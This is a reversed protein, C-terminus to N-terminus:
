VKGYSYRVIISVLTNFVISSAPIYVISFMICLVAFDCFSDHQLNPVLYRTCRECTSRSPVNMIEILIAPIPQLLRLFSWWGVPLSVIWFIEIWNTLRVVTHLAVTAHPPSWKSRPYSRYRTSYLITGAPVPVQQWPGCGTGPVQYWTALSRTPVAAVLVLYRCTATM